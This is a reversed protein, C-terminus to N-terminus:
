RLLTLALQPQLNAQALVSIALQQQIQNRAMDATEQAVDVDRIRSDAASLNERLNQISAIASLLTNQTAGLTGRASSVEDVASDLVSLAAAAHAASDISPGNLGLQASSSNELSLQITQGSHAGVLLSISTSTGDLLQVGNFTTTAAIRDIEDVLSQFESQLTGRDSNSLTGNASQVALERMRVLNNGIEGLAGEAIQAMSLGDLAHRGAVTLSRIEARLRDSMGLGAPDDAATAIRLGSSLRAFNGALRGSVAALNRQATMSAINTNIRLGMPFTLLQRPETGPAVFRAGPSRAAVQKAPLEAAPRTACCCIFPIRLARAKCGGRHAEASARAMAPRM